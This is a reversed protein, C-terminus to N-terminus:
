AEIMVYIRQADGFPLQRNHWAAHALIRNLPPTARSTPRITITPAENTLRITQM